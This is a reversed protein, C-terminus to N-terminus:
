TMLANPPKVCDVSITICGCLGDMDLSRMPLKAM